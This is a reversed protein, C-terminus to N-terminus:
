HDPGVQASAMVPVPPSVSPATRGAGEPGGMALGSPSPLTDSPIRNLFSMGTKEMRDLMRKSKRSLYAHLFLSPIAVILGFKTTILAESIGSSLTGADGTGFVTILKFTNIIGTVTGLLGMLPAAAASVAIFSLLRQLSLRTELVKEFMVEEILEKPESVHELGSRLMEGTPGPLTELKKTALALNGQKVADLFSAIRQQAPMRVRSFQVLKIIAVILSAAALLLIAIMVVGGKDIEERFSDEAAEIKRASGLTPDFPLEGIGSAVISSAEATQEPLDFGVMNPELSGLRLEAIGADTGDETRYLALPGILAFRVNEVVGDSAVARGEFRTGGVLDTLRDVSAEVLLAQARFRDAPDLSDEEPARRARDITERYRRVEAIHVSSEFNRAYEGLLGSLYTAEDKRGEIESEVKGLDLTRRDLDRSARELEARAASLETELERLRRDLPLKESAIRERLASLEQLSRELDQQVSSASERFAAREAPEDAALGGGFAGLMVAAAILKKM